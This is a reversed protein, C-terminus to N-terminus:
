CFTLEFWPDWKGDNQIFSVEKPRGPAMTSPAMQENLPWNRTAFNCRSDPQRSFKWQFFCKWIWRNTKNTTVGLFALCFMAFGLGLFPIVSIMKGFMIEVLDAFEMQNIFFGTWVLCLRRNQSTGDGLIHCGDFFALRCRLAAVWDGWLKPIWRSCISSARLLYRRSTSQNKLVFFLKGFILFCFILFNGFVEPKQLVQPLFSYTFGLHGWEQKRDM